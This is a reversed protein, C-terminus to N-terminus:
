FSICGVEGVWVGDAVREGKKDRFSIWTHLRYGRGGTAKMLMRADLLGEGASRMGGNATWILDNTEPCYAVLIAQDTAAANGMGTNDTWTFRLQQDETFAVAPASAKKLDGRAIELAPYDIYLDPYVGGVAQTLIRSLAANKKTKGYGSQYSIEVLEGMAKLFRMGLAFRVKQALQAESFSPNSKPTPLSRICPIGNWSSGIVTGVKGSISNLIGNHRAM